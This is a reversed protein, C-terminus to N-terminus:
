GKTQQDDVHPRVDITLPTGPMTWADEHLGIGGPGEADQADAEKQKMAWDEKQRRTGPPKWGGGSRAMEMAMPM